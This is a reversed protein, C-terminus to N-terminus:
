QVNNLGVWKQKIGSKFYKEDGAKWFVLKPYARTKIHGHLENFESSKQKLNEVIKKLTIEKIDSSLKVDPRLEINIELYQNNKKDFKTLLVFKGTYNDSLVQEILAERIIEPYIQLGYLTTSMDKREYVYVLPLKYVYDEIRAKKIEKDLDYNFNSLKESMQNYDFIGGHDGIAYRILPISNNSTLLLEGNTEEFMISYPNYQALTPTKSIGSFLSKFLSENKAAITRTLISIPTEFAMTGLDSSGYINCTDLYRNKVKAAKVLYNRFNETFPEAACLLRLNIKDLDVGESAADDIVDKVFPPYGVLITSDFHPSLNKLAKHIEKKNIGPTIISVPLKARTRALDFANYTLLGAIWVGFSFGIVVLTTKDEVKPDQKLFLEHVLSSQWDLTHGRPFYFPEGTSGSTSSFVTSNASFNGDWLLDQYPYKQLYSKKDIIPLVKFDALSRVRDSDIRNKRLLDKYAPVRKSASHFLSLAVREEIKHWHDSNKTKFERVIKPAGTLKM